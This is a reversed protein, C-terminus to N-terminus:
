PDKFDQVNLARPDKKEDEDDVVEEEVKKSRTKRPALEPLERNNVRRVRNQDESVEVETSDVLAKSIDEKKIGLSKIKRCNLL